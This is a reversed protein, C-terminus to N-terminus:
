PDKFYFTTSLAYSAINDTTHTSYQEYPVIAIGYNVFRPMGGGDENYQIRKDKLPVYCELYNSKEKAPHTTYNVSPTRAILKKITIIRDPNPNDVMRNVMGGGGSMGRWFVADNIGLVTYSMAYKFVYVHYMVNPRDEKCSLWLKIKIGRAIVEDGIRQASTALLGEPDHTGQGTKLINTIYNTSNHFLQINEQYQSGKKTECQNLAISKILKPLSKRKKRRLYKRPTKGKVLHTARQGTGKYQLYM